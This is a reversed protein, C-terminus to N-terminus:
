HLIVNIILKCKNTSFCIPELNSIFQPLVPHKPQLNENVQALVSYIPKLNSTHQTGLCFLNNSFIQFLNQCYLITLQLNANVQALVSYIPELNSKLQTGFCFM